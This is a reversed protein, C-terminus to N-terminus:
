RYKQLALEVKELVMEPKIRDMGIRRTEVDVSYGEGPYRAYGDVVLDRYRRYPGSRKPNTFGYLGVVPVGLAQAMHLPGTDPSIVLTSADLIWLMRRLGDGLENRVPARTLSGIADAMLAERRSPGGVLIPQLGFDQYLADLVSAYGEASWDKRPTSTGVVVSCLPHHFTQLFAEQDSRESSTLRLGYEVPEPDVGLVSLFEFYQDQTHAHVSPNPPIRHTSFLSNLDRTRRRDFGLKIKGPSLATLIGAKMYVQLDVILDFRGGPQSRAVRSIERATDRISRVGTWLALPDRRRNGRRFLIFRDVSPHGSVLSFPLPQLVWTISASPFARKLATVVPLVQVADGIASLMVILISRPPNVPLFAASTEPGSPGENDDERRVHRAPVPPGGANM